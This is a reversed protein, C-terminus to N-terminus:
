EEELTEPDPHRGWDGKHESPDGFTVRGDDPAPEECCESGQEANTPRPPTGMMELDKETYGVLAENM